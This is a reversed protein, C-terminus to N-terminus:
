KELYMIRLDNVIADAMDLAANCCKRGTEIEEASYKGKPNDWSKLAKDYSEVKELIVTAIEELTKNKQQLKELRNIIKVTKESKYSKM